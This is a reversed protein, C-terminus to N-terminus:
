KYYIRDQTRLDFYKIKSLDLEPINKNIVERFKILSEEYNEPNFYIEFGLTTRAILDPYFQPTILFDRIEINLYEKIVKKFDGLLYIIKEDFVPTGLKVDEDREDTLRLILSGIPEPTEKFLFSNKDFWFCTTSKLDSKSKTLPGTLQDQNPSKLDDSQPVTEQPDSSTLETLEPTNLSSCFIGTGERENTTLTIKKKFFNKEIKISDIELFNSTLYDSLKQSNVFLNNKKYFYNQSIFDNIKERISSRFKEPGIINIEPDNLIEKKPLYWILIAVVLILIGLFFLRYKIPRRRSIKRPQSFQKLYRTSV